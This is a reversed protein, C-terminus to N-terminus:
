DPPVMLTLATFRLPVLAASNLLPVSVQVPWFTNAVLVQVTWYVKVGVLLPTRLAVTVKTLLPGSLGVEASTPMPPALWAAVLSQNVKYSGALAPTFASVIWM